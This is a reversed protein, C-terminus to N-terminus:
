YRMPVDQHWQDIIEFVSPDRLMSAFVSFKNGTDPCFMVWGETNRKHMIVLEGKHNYSTDCKLIAKIHTTGRHIVNNKKM